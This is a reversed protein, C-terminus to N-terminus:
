IAQIIEPQAATLLRVAKQDSCPLACGQGEGPEGKCYISFWCYALVDCVTTRQAENQTSDPGVTIDVFLTHLHDGPFPFLCTM